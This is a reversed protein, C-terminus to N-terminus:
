FTYQLGLYLFQTDGGGGDKVASGAILYGYGASAVVHPGMTHKVTLDLETGVNRSSSTGGPLVARGGADYLADSSSELWFQHVDFSGSWDPSFGLGAGASLDIANQRGVADIMGYYAHGLPFLQNFTGVGGGAESDGSALDLGLRLRPDAPLDGPKWGVEAAVMYAGVNSPGVEGFQYAAELDGDLESGKSGFSGRAGVTYRKEEGSTGNFTAMPREFGLAYADLVKGGDKRTAYIGYFPLDEDPENFDSIDVPAFLTFFSSVNWLGGTWSVNLGDWTRLANAWPLPSVLRQRGYQLMQRGARVTADGADGLSFTHDWFAQQLAFSDVDIPRTGGLLDRDTSQATKCEVFIRDREGLHLDGHLLVRTLLFEDDNPVTPPIGFSFNRWSELRFRLHGGIGLWVSEDERLPMYKLRDTPDGTETLDVAAAYAGWDENQRLFTYKPRKAEQGQLPAAFVLLLPVAAVLM